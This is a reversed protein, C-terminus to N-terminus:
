AASGTAKSKAPSAKGADRDHGFSKGASARVGKDRKLKPKDNADAGAKDSTSKDAGSKTDGAKDPKGAKEPKDADPKDAKEPKATDPKDAKEPKATDPKDAKEPTDAKPANGDAAPSKTPGDAASEDTTDPDTKTPASVTPTTDEPAEPAVTAPVDEVVPSTVVPSEVAPPTVAPTTEAEEAIAEEVDKVKEVETKAADTVINEAAALAKADTVAPQDATEPDATTALATEAPEEVSALKAVLPTAAPAPNWATMWAKLAAVFAAVADNIQKQLAKLFAAVPDVPPTTPTGPNQTPHAKIWAKLMEAAQKPTWNANFLGYNDEPNASGVANDKTTYLFVPGAQSYTQWYDLLDKIYASQQAQTVNNTPLGYESIWVSKSVGILKKIADLQELPTGLGPYMYGDSFKLSEQYPHFSLADFYQGAGAAIMGKVFDVPNVTYPSTQGAGLAGAVVTATPDGNTANKIVTYAAKLLATYAVPDTSQYFASWNPENWIEYASITSGYRNVVQQVFEAFKAPAPAGAGPFSNAPAAWSPTSNIDAMVGMNRAAAAKMVTDLQDWYYHDDTQEVVAWPVLVRINTVGLAQLEDLTKNVEAASKYVLGSDAIGVTSSSNTIEAVQAYDLSVERPPSLFIGSAYASAMAIPLTAVVGKMAVRRLLERKSITM